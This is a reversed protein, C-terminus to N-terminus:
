GSPKLTSNQTLDAVDEVGRSWLKAQRVGVGVRSDAEEKTGDTSRRTGGLPRCLKTDDMRASCWARDAGKTMVGCRQWGLDRISPVVLTTLATM